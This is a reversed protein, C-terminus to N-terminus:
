KGCILNSDTDIGLLNTIDVENIEEIRIILKLESVLQNRRM